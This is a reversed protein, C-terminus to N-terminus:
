DFRFSAVRDKLSGTSWLDAIKKLHERGYISFAENMGGFSPPMGTYISHAHEAAIASDRYTPRPVRKLNEPGYGDSGMAGTIILAARRLAFPPHTRMGLDFGAIAQDGFMRFMSHIAFSVDFVMGALDIGNPFWPLRANPLDLTLSASGLRSIFSRQDADMELAQLEVNGAEGRVADLESHISSSNLSTLYGIHGHLLHAIEHGILFMMAQGTLWDAFAARIECKPRMLQVGAEHMMQANTSFAALPELEEELSSNGRQTMVRSDALMRSFIIRLAAFAGTTLGIFLRRQREFALANIVGTYVFDFHIPPLNPNLHRASDILEQADAELSTFGRAIADDGSQERNFRGGRDLVAAHFIEEPSVM